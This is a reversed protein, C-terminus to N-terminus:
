REREREKSQEQQHERAVTEKLPVNFGLGIDKQPKQHQFAALVRHNPRQAVKTHTKLVGKVSGGMWVSGRLSKLM